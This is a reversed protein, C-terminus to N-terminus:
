TLLNSSLKSRDDSSKITQNAVARKLQSWARSYSVGYSKVIWLISEDRAFARFKPQATRM